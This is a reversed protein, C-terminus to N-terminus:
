SLQTLVPARTSARVCAPISRRSFCRLPGYRHNYANHRSEYPTQSSFFKSLTWNASFEEVRTSFLLGTELYPVSSGGSHLYIYSTVAAPNTNQLQLLVCDVSRCKVVAKSYVWIPEPRSKLHGDCCGSGLARFAYPIYVKALHECSSSLQTVTISYGSM